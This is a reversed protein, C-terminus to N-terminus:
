RARAGGVVGDVHSINLTLGKVPMAKNTAGYKTPLDKVSTKYWHQFLYFQSTRRQSKPAYKERQMNGHWDLTYLLM